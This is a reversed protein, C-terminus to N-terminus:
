SASDVVFAFHTCVPRANFEGSMIEIEDEYFWRAARAKAIASFLFGAASL